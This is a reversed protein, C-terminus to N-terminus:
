PRTGSRRTVFEMSFVMAPTRRSEWFISSPRSHRCVRSTIVGVAPTISDNIVLLDNDTDLPLATPYYPGETQEPTVTLVEAFLGPVHFLASGLGALGAKKLFGRRNSSSHKTKM